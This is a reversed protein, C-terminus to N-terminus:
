RLAESKTVSLIREWATRFLIVYGRIGQFIPFKDVLTMIIVKVSATSITPKEIIENDNLWNSWKNHVCIIILTFLNPYEYYALEKHTKNRPHHMLVFCLALLKINIPSRKGRNMNSTIYRLRYLLPSSPGPISDRHPRSKRCRDLGTSPGLWGGTCHTCPREPPYLAAPTYRQSRM